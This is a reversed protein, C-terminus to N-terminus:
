FEYSLGASVSVARSQSLNLNQSALALFYNAHHLSIEMSGFRTEYGVGLDWGSAVRYSLGVQPFWNGDMGELRALITANGYPYDAELRLIPKLSLNLAQYRNDGSISASAKPVLAGGALDGNISQTILPVRDWKIRGFLDNVAFALNAGNELHWALGFDIAYGWGAPVDQAQAPSFASFSASPMVAHLRTNFLERNGVLTATGLTTVLNGKAQELRVDYGHLLSAAVGWRLEGGGATSAARSLGMRLGDASFGRLSYDLDFRRTQSALQKTQDLYHADVTDSNAKLLWDQRYFYAVSWDGRREGLSLRENAVALNTGSIKRYDAPWPDDSFRSVPVMDNGAFLAGSLDFANMQRAPRAPNDVMLVDLGWAPNVAAIALTWILGISKM